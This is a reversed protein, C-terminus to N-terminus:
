IIEDFSPNFYLTNIKRNFTIFRPLTNKNRELVSVIVELMEFDEFEPLTYQAM